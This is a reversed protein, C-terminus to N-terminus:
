ITIQKIVCMCLKIHEALLYRVELRYPIPWMFYQAGYFAHLAHVSLFVSACLKEIGQM